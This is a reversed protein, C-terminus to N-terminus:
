KFAIPSKTNKRMRYETFLEEETINLYINMELVKALTYGPDYGFSHGPYILTERPLIEKLKKLSQFMQGPDGGKTNCIGCGETFLTDGTFIANEIKYCFGGITHGPTHIATVELNGAKVTEEGITKLNNCNFNYYAQEIASMYVPCGYITTLKEALNVHDNHSHTLFIGKLEIEMAKIVAKFQSLDWAPDILIGEKKEKDLILYCYNKFLISATKITFIRTKM